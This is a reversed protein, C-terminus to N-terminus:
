SIPNKCAYIDQLIKGSRAMRERLTEPELIEVDADWELIWAHFDSTNRVKLTMIISGDNQYQIKQSPHWITNEILKSIKPSFRLKATILEDDKHLTWVSKLYDLPDFYSPIEYMDQMDQEIHVHGIIRDTKYICISKKYYCYGIALTSHGWNSPEIYYIDFTREIPKEDSIEQFYFRVRRKSLWAETLKSLNQLMEENQPQKEMYELCNQIQQKLPHPVISNLKMFVSESAPDHVYSYNLMLRLALFIRMAENDTLNIPPLNYGEVIGRKTNKEWIPVSLEKELAIFDRYSTRKSVSCKRAM